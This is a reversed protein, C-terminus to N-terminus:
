DFDRCVSFEDFNVFTQVSVKQASITPNQPFTRYPQLSHLFVVNIIFAYNIRILHHGLYWQFNRKERTKSISIQRGERWGSTAHPPTTCQVASANGQQIVGLGRMCDNLNVSKSNMLNRTANAQEPKSASVGWIYGVEAEPIRSNFHDNKSALKPPEKSSVAIKQISSPTFLLQYIVLITSLM